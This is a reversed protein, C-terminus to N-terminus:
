KLILSKIQTLSKGGKKFQEIKSFRRAVSKLDYLTMGGPTVGVVELLGERTYYKITSVPIGLNRAVDSRRIWLSKHKLIERLVYDEM